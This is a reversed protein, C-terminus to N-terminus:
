SKCENKIANISNANIERYQKSSNISIRPKSEIKYDKKKGINVCLLQTVSLSGLTKPCNGQLIGVIM